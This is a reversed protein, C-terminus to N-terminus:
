QGEFYLNQIRRLSLGQGIILLFLNEIIGLDITDTRPTLLLLCVRLNNDIVKTIIVLTAIILHDVTIMESVAIFDHVGQALARKALYQVASIVLCTFGNRNLDDAIFLTEM